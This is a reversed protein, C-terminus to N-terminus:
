QGREDVIVIKGEVLRWKARNSRDTPLDNDDIDVFPLGELSSRIEADLKVTRKRNPRLIRLTGDPLQFVRCQM